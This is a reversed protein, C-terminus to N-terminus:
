FILNFVGGILWKLGIFIILSLVWAGVGHLLTIVVVGTSRQSSLIISSIMLGFFMFIAYGIFFYGLGYQSM